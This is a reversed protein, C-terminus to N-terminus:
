RHGYIYMHIIHLYVCIHTCIYTYYECVCVCVCVYSYIFARSRVLSGILEAAHPDDADVRRKM